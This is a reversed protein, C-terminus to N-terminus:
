GLESIPGSSADGWAWVDQGMARALSIYLDSHRRSGLHLLRGTSFFGSAGGAVVFPMNDHQHTNGDCVESCLVVISHDLMTGEGEPRTKLQELLYAFQAVWWKRQKMFHDFESKTDDHSAGYHSAQHSRMDYGPTYMSTNLFRSMILESTHHSGQITGVRTLGCAMANVMVDIQTKLISPFREPNYLEGNAFGGDAVVVNQCSASVQVDGTTTEELARVRTEVERLSELHFDLKAAEVAGLRTKYANMEALMGDLVSVELNPRAPGGPTTSPAPTSEPANGDFLRGFAAIPNDEPAVTQGPNVYTIHKDGSAGNQNAMAGLYLHRFPRDAGATQGLFHDISWGSGGDKATLLKKAGGPHSGNDTSGMSLGTFFICDNKYPELASVQAPLGFNHESGSPHWLSPEGNQSPGAVGDPFYFFIIRRAQGLDARASSSFLAAGAGGGVISVTGALGRLFSRRTFKM